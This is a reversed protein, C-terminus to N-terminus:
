DIYKELHHILQTAQEKSPSLILLVDFGAMTAVIGELDMEDLYNAIVDAGNSVTHIVTIFEVQEISKLYENMSLKLKETVDAEATAIMMYKTKGEKTYTKRYEVGAYRKFHDSTHFVRRTREILADIRRTDRSRPQPDFAQYDSTAPKEEFHDGAEVRDM